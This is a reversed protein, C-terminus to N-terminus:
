IISYLHLLCSIMTIQNQGCIYEASHKTLSEIEIQNQNRHWRLLPDSCVVNSVYNGDQKLLVLYYYRAIRDPTLLAWRWKAYNRMALLSTAAFVSRLFPWSIYYWSSHLHKFIFLHSTTSSWCCKWFMACQAATTHENCRAERTLASTVKFRSNM